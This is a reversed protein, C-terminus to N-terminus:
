PVPVKEKLEEFWNVVINLTPGGTAQESTLILFRQGDRTVAYQDQVPTVIIGTQFLPQPKSPTLQEGKLEVAMMTGDLALYFLEKGDDRRWQPQGGGQTSVIQRKGERGLPKIYVEWQGTEDSMYIMWKGDPSFKPEDYNSSGQVEPIPTKDDSLPLKWLCNGDGSLEKYFIFRGDDSWDETILSSNNKSELLLEPEEEGTLSKRFIKNDSRFAIYDGDPSWIPALGSFLDPIIPFGVGNRDLELVWLNKRGSPGKEIAVKKGDPSLSFQSYSAPEGVAELPNGQRDYWQLQSQSNIGGPIYALTGSVSVAFRNVDEVLSASGGTTELTDLDFPVAYINNELGYVIHKTPLYYAWEGVILPKRKDSEISHVTIQPPQSNSDRFLVTNGDPLLQPNIGGEILLKPTGSYSSVEYITGSDGYLISDEKPWSIGIVM